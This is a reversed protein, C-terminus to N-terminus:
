KIETEWLGHKNCYAYLKGSTTNNFSVEPNDGPKLYVYEERDETLLAIWEIYHEAEMVHAVSVVIKNDKINYTPKHKEIAADVSNAKVAKMPEGCCTIGCDGCHCDEIVRVVAGCKVCKKINLEKM